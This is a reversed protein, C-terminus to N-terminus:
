AARPAFTSDFHSGWARAVTLADSVSPTAQQLVPVGHLTMQVQFGGQDAGVVQCRRAGADATWVIVTMARTQM